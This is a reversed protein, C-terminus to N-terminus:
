THIAHEWFPFMPCAGKWGEVAGLPAIDGVKPIVPRRQVIFYCGYIYIMQVNNWWYGFGGYFFWHYLIFWFTFLFITPCHLLLLLHLDAAYPEVLLQRFHQFVLSLSHVLLHFSANSSFRAM